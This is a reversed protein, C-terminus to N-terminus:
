PGSVRGDGRRGKLEGDDAGMPEEQRAQGGLACEQNARKTLVEDMWGEENEVAVVIDYDDTESTACCAM